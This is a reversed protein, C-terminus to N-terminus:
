FSLTGGLIIIRISYNIGLIQFRRTSIRTIPHFRNSSEHHKTTPLVIGMQIKWLTRETCGYPQTGGVGLLWHWLWVVLAGQLMFEKYKGGAWKYLVKYTEVTLLSREGRLESDLHNLTSYFFMTWWWEWHTLRSPWQAEKPGHWLLTDTNRQSFVPKIPFNGTGTHPTCLGNM